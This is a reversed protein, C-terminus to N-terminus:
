CIRHKIYLADGWGCGTDVISKRSFGHPVIISELESILGCGLYLEEFNVETYIFDCHKLYNEAGRLARTEVGQIDLVLCNYDKPELREKSLFQDITTCEVQISSTEHVDPHRKLHLHLPLLSSSQINNTVRLTMPGSSDSIAANYIKVQSGSSCRDQLVPIINPNAEVFVISEVGNQRYYEFEEGIHAGIHLIGTVPKTQICSKLFPILM